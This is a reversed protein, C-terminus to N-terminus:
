YFFYVLSNLFFHRLFNKRLMKMGYIYKKDDMFLAMYYLWKHKHVIVYFEMKTRVFRRNEIFSKSCILTFANESLFFFNTDKWCSGQYVNEKSNFSAKAVFAIQLIWHFFAEILSKGQYFNENKLMLFSTLIHITGKYLYDHFIVRFIFKNVSNIKVLNSPHWPCCMLRYKAYVHM